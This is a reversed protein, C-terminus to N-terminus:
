RGAAGCINTRTSHRGDAGACGTGFNVILTDNDSNNFTNSTITACTSYISEQEQQGLKYTTMSGNSAQDGINVIDNSYTEAVTHDEAASTDDDDKVKKKCSSLLLTASVIVLAFSTVLIKKNM